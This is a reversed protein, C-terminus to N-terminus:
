REIPRCQWSKLPGNPYLLIYIVGRGGGVDGEVLLENACVSLEREREQFKRVRAGKIEL